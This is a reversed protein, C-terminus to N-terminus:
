VPNAAGVLSGLYVRDCTRLCNDVKCRYFKTVGRCINAVVVGTGYAFLLQVGIM